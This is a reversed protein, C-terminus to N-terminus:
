IGYLEVIRRYFVRLVEENTWEKNFAGIGKLLCRKVFDDESKYTSLVRDAKWSNVTFGPIRNGKGCTTCVGREGNHYADCNECYYTLM